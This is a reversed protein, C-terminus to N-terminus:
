LSQRVVIVLLVGRPNGHHLPLVHEADCALVDVDIVEDDHDDAIARRDFTRQAGGADRRDGDSVDLAIWHLLGERIAIQALIPNASGNQAISRVRAGRPHIGHVSKGNSQKEDESSERRPTCGGLLGGGIYWDRPKM